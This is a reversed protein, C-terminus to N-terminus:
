GSGGRKAPLPFKTVQTAPLPLSAAPLTVRFWAGSGEHALLTLAGHFARVLANAITLGLGTGGRERATTFFADFVKPRNAPSIGRGDDCVDLHVGAADAACRLTVTVADGGHHRANEVLHNLVADLVDPPAAVQAALAGEVRVTLGQATWRAALAEVVPGVAASQPASSRVEARALVLLREVLRTMREADAAINGLFKARQEPTLGPEGLLEVAGRISALPTKFEHSVSSTFSRVYSAREELLQAMAALSASLEALEQVVPRAIPGGPQGAGVARTQRVLARVPRVVFASIGLSVLALVALLVMATAGLNWRDGYVAKAPTLPTRVLLVAGWVRGEDVVPVTVSVRVAADRSLSALSRDSPDPARQRLLSVPAGRLARQLEERDGLAQGLGEHSSAVVVGAGDTVRIGALTHRSVERLLPSVRAGAERSFADAPVTSPLAEPPPPLTPDATRLSPLFPELQGEAEPRDVQPLGYDAPSPLRARLEARYVEAVAVGQALLESETQHILAQDYVRVLALGGLAALVALVGFGTLLMWLRPRWRRVPASM